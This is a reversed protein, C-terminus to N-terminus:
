ISIFAVTFSLVISVVATVPLSSSTLELPSQTPTSTPQPTPTTFWSCNGYRYCKHGKLAINAYLNCNDTQCCCHTYNFPVVDWTETRSECNPEGDSIGCASWYTCVRTWDDRGFDVSFQCADREGECERIDSENVPNSISHYCSLCIGFDFYHCLVLLISLIKPGMM